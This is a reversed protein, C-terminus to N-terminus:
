MGDEDNQSFVRFASARIARDTLPAPPALAWTALLQKQAIADDNPLFNRRTHTSLMSLQAPNFGSDLRGALEALTAAQHQVLAGLQQLQRAQADILDIQAAILGHQREALTIGRTPRRRRPLAQSM